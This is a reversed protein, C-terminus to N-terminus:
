KMGEFPQHGLIAYFTNILVYFV